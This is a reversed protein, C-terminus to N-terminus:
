EAELTQHHHLLRRRSGRRLGRFGRPSVGRLVPWGATAPKKHRKKRHKHQKQGPNRCNKAEFRAEFCTTRRGGALYECTPAMPLGACLQTGVVSAGGSPRRKVPNYAIAPRRLLSVHYSNWDQTRALHHGWSPRVVEGQTCRECCFRGDDFDIRRRRGPNVLGNSCLPSFLRSQRCQPRIDGQVEPRWDGVPIGARCRRPCISAVPGREEGVAKSHGVTGQDGCGDKGSEDQVRVPKGHGHTALSM